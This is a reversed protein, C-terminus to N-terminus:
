SAKAEKDEDSEDENAAEATEADEAEDSQATEEQAKREAEEAEREAQLASEDMLAEKSDQVDEAGAGKPPQADDSVVAKGTKLQMQAEDETRAINVKVDVKVEPHLGVTVDYLGVDKLNQNLEVLNRGIKQEAQKNIADAIDRASVSGYLQGSEGAQRILTVNMGEISKAHKEAAKKKEANAKELNAKQSEFYAVNAETARLAKNQPLLFNRAYGPRVSVTEGMEGLNEIKELLILKTAM